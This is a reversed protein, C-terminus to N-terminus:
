PMPPFSGAPAYWDNPNIDTVVSGDEVMVPILSHDTCDVLLGCPVAQSYGASLGSGDLSYAVVYYTRAPVLLDYTGQGVVTDVSAVEEMTTADFAVIRHAPVFQSSFLNGRITGGAPTVVATSETTDTPAAVAPTVTDSLQPTLSSLPNTAIVFVAVPSPTASPAPTSSACAALTLGLVISLSILTKNRM